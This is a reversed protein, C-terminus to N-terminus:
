ARIFGCCGIQSFETFGSSKYFAQTKHTNDTTLEIQRVHSYRILLEKLLATGVGQRQYLPAVLIDQIFVITAGDGVARIIGMLTNDDDYAALICLSNKYGRSLAPMDKTYETWGVSSYLHLIEAENYHTYETIKM